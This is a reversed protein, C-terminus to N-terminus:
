CGGQDDQFIFRNHISGDVAVKCGLCLAEKFLYSRPTEKEAAEAQLEPFIKEQSVFLVVRPNWEPPEQNQVLM